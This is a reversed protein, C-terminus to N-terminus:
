PLLGEPILPGLLCPLCLPIYVSCNIQIWFEVCAPRISLDIRLGLSQKFYVSYRESLPYLHLKSQITERHRRILAHPSKLQESLWPMPASIQIQVEGVLHCLGSKIVCLDGAASSKNEVVVSMNQFSEYHSIIAWLTALM